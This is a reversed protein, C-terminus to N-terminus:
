NMSDQQELGTGAEQCCFLALAANQAAERRKWGWRSPVCGPQGHQQVDGSQASRKCGCFRRTLLLYGWEEEELEPTGPCGSLVPHSPGLFSLKFSEKREPKTRGAASPEHPIQRRGTAGPPAACSLLQQNQTNNLPLVSFMAKQIDTQCRRFCRCESCPKLIEERTWQSLLPAKIKWTKQKILPQRMLIPLLILKDQTIQHLFFVIFTPLIERDQSHM